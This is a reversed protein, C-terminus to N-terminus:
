QNHLYDTFDVTEPAIVPLVRFLRMVLFMEL